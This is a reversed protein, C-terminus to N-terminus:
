IRENAAPGMSVIKPMADEFRKSALRRAIASAIKDADAQSIVSQASGTGIETFGKQSVTESRVSTFVPTTAFLEEYAPRFDHHESAAGDFRVFNEETEDVCQSIGGGSDDTNRPPEAYMIYGRIAGPGSGVVLLQFSEDHFEEAPSEVDCSSFTENKALTRGDHTRLPRSQKKLAFIQDEMSYTEGSRWVGVTANFRKTFIRKYKGRMAGAWFIAFDVTGAMESAFLDSYRFEKVKMPLGFHLARTEFWWTIPCGDDLRDPTFAEWLRNKGDYDFSFYLAREIGNINEAIWNIPRTGTWYSNWAPMPRVQTGVLITNDLCWTHTNHEDAHPVSVLLYNEFTACAIGSLDESLRAKSDTMEADVYNLSSTVFTQAAADINVLGHASYWWLYGYHLVVSRQSVCGIKPFIEKQFDQTGAWKSRDRIGAQFLTTSTETFALLQAFGQATSPTKTLATVTAPMVFFTATSIYLPETFSTPNGLDSAFIKAGQAVWLRDGIWEMPGCLPITGPGRQPTARTGDFVVTPSTGGDSIILLNKPSVLTLSGDPNFEVSQEVQKFYLQRATPSFSVGAVERYFRFPTDSIYLKGEVGFLISSLGQKPRFLAGGQFLGDPLQSICRYGPRCQVIGGRNVVNMGRAYFSDLLLDPSLSSNMGGLFLSDGFQLKGRAM